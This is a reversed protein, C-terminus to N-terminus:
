SKARQARVYATLVEAMRRTYGKESEGQFFAKVEPPVRMSILERSEPTVVEAGNWFEDPLDPGEPADPNHCLEGRAQMARIEELTVTM